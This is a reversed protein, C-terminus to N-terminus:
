KIVQNPTNNARALSVLLGNPFILLYSIISIFAFGVIYFLWNLFLFGLIIVKGDPNAKIIQSASKFFFYLM